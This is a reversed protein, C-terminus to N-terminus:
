AVVPVSIPEVCWEVDSEAAELGVDVGVDARVFEFGKPHAQLAEMFAKAPLSQQLRHLLPYPKADGDVADTLQVQRTHDAVRRARPVFKLKRDLVEVLAVQRGHEIVETADSRRERNNPM